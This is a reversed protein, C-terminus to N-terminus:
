GCRKREEDARLLRWSEVEVGRSRGVGEVADRLQILESDLVQFVLRKQGQTRGELVLGGSEESVVGNERVIGLVQLVLQVDSGVFDQKM